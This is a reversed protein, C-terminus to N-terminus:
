GSYVRFFWVKNVNAASIALPAPTVTLTGSAYSITYNGDIAGSATIPYGGSVVPSAATAITSLSPATTLSAATDGNVLGSYTAMFTPLAAGYVKSASAATITLPAPAVTLTGAMYNFAYNPDVAGSAAIAYGGSVVPSAETAATALSPATTLSSASDGNVFGSYTATLAPLAEGYVKSVNAASITLPAPTVTLTGSAYSITYNGDDAGSATIAYGGSVVPSAETAATALSPATTLSSASDGNVFGSYTATLAPLAAGYVKSVNAASITLPAPTVTLTGSAYSITYNGDVAGSATIAYGGSVVPSAATATTSFSPATTLSAATDGSVFGGYTATFTPLDAGYVKSVNAATVTLPAPTVTLTGAEYAIAYNADFAGAATIAYGGPVVPSTATAVTSLTPAITLSDATEGNVFGSYTLTLAPLDAGYVKSASTATITLPAPNITLTGTTNASGFTGDSAYSFTVSYPTSSVFLSATNLTVRFAGGTGITAPESIGAVTVLVSENSGQPAQNGNSLTGSFTATSGYTISPESLGSFTLAVLNKLSFSATSTTGLGSATATYSGVIANATATVQAIGDSGIIATAASLDASAGNQAPNVTFNVVGGAVPEIPNIATVTVALPNTFATGTITAQPTSGAVVTLIFGQSQFAGIDVTASLPEGRQDTSIGPIATGTGLALSGPLLPM